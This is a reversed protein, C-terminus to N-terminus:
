DPQIVNVFHFKQSYELRTCDFLAGYYFVDGTFNFSVYNKIFSDFEQLIYVGTSYM